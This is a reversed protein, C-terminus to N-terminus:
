RQGAGTTDMHARLTRLRRDCHYYNIIDGLLIFATLGLVIGAIWPSVTTFRSILWLVAIAAVLFGAYIPIATRSRRRDAELEKIQKPTSVIARPARINGFTLVSRGGGVPVTSRV